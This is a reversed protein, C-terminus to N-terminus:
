VIVIVNGILYATPAITVLAPLSVISFPLLSVLMVKAPGVSIVNVDSLM